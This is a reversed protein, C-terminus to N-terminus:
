STDSFSVNSISPLDIFSKFFSGVLLLTRIYLLFTPSIDERLSGSWLFVIKSERGLNFDPLHTETPLNSILVEPNIKNLLSPDKAFLKICGEELM